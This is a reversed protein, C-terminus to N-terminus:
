LPRRSLEICSNRQVVNWTRCPNRFARDSSKAVHSIKEATNTHTNFRNVQFNRFCKNTKAVSTKVHSGSSWITLLHYITRSRGCGVRRGRGRIEINPGDQKKKKEGEAQEGVGLMSIRPRLPIGFSSIFGRVLGTARRMHTGLLM